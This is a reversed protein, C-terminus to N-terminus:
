SRFKNQRGPISCLRPASAPQPHLLLFAFPAATGPPPSPPHTHACGPGPLQTEAQPHNMLLPFKAPDTTQSRFGKENDAGATSISGSLEPFCSKHKVVHRVNRHRTAPRSPAALGEAKPGPINRLQFPAVPPLIGFCSPLSPCQPTVPGGRALPVRPCLLSSPLPCHLSSLPRLHFESM